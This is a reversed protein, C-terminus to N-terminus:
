LVTSQLCIGRSEAVIIQGSTPRLFGMIMKIATTKGAGNKGILATIKGQPIGVNCDLVGPKKGYWKSAGEFSVINTACMM